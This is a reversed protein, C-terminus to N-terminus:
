KCTMQYPRKSSSHLDIKTWSFLWNDLYSKLRSYYLISTLYFLGKAPLMDEISVAQLFQDVTIGGKKRMETAFKILNENPHTQSKMAISCNGCKKRSMRNMYNWTTSSGFYTQINRFRDDLLPISHNWHLRLGWVLVLCPFLIGKM